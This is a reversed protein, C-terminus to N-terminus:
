ARMEGARWFRRVDGERLWFLGFTVAWAGVIDITYHMHGFVLSVVVAVHALAMWGRVAPWRMVYLLLLFTTATHGSFFLDRTLFLHRQDAIVQNIGSASHGIGSVPGLSTACVCLGRTLALLGDTVSYRAYRRPDRFLLVLSVPIFGAVWVAYNLDYMWPLYPARDVVFDPLSPGTQREAWLTLRIMVSVCGWRFLVAALLYAATARHKRALDLAARLRSM